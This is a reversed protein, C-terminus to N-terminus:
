RFRLVRSPSIKLIITLPIKLFGICTIVFLINLFFVDMFTLFVPAESVFYTQPDLKIWGWKDQILYFFIGFINGVLLGRFIIVLGNWMFINKIIVNSAGITKLIAIMRSKELILVLLGTSMNTVGVFIMVILIILINFDFLAIWQFITKHKKTISISDLEPPLEDYIKNSIKEADFIDHLFVEYAGIKNEDWKNLSQVQRIDGYILGEDIEPFGSEYIGVIKFIRRNPIKQKSMNHFYADINDGIKLLLRKAIVSSIIIENSIKMKDFDPHMGEKIFSKLNNWNYDLDVGKFLIGDFDNTNRLMGATFAIANVSKVENNQIILSRLEKTNEFPLISVESENNEFPTISIHGNFAATKIRIEKQLGKGFSYSILIVSIGLSVAVIAINIIRGSVNSKYLKQQQM